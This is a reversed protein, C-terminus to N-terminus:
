QKDTYRVVNWSSQDHLLHPPPNLQVMVLTALSIFEFIKRNFDLEKRFFTRELCTTAITAFMRYFM